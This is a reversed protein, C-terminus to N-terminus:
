RRLPVRAALPKRGRFLDSDEISWQGNRRKVTLAPLVGVAWDSWGAPGDYSSSKYRYSRASTRQFTALGHYDIGNLRQAESLTQQAIKFSIDRYQAYGVVVDRTDDEGASRSLIETAWGDPIRVWYADVRSRVFDAAVVDSPAGHPSRWPKGSADLGPLAAFEPNDRLAQAYQTESNARLRSVFPAIERMAVESFYRRLLQGVFGSDAEFRYSQAMIRQDRADSYRPRERKYILQGYASALEQERPPWPMQGVRTANIGVLAYLIRHAALRLAATEEDGNGQVDAIVRAVDPMESWYAYDGSDRPAASPSAAVQPSAVPPASPAVARRAARRRESTTMRAESRLRAESYGAIWEPSFFRHLVDDKFLTDREYKFVGAFWQAIAANGDGEPKAFDPKHVWQQASDYSKTLRAEDPTPESGESMHGVTRGSIYRDLSLQKLFQAVVSLAALQRAMRDMSDPGTYAAVVRGPEPFGSVYSQATATAAFSASSFAVLAACITRAYAGGFRCLTRLRRM